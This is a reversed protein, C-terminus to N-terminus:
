IKNKFTKSANEPVHLTRSSGLATESKYRIYKFREISEAFNSQIMFFAFIYIQTILSEFAHCVRM